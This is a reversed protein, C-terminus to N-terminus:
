SLVNMGERDNRGGVVEKEYGRTAGLQIRRLWSLRGGDVVEGLNVDDKSLSASDEGTEGIWDM